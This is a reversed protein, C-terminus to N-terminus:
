KEGESCTINIHNYRLRYTQHRLNSIYNLSMLFRNASEQYETQKAATTPPPPAISGATQLEAGRNSSPLLCCVLEAIVFLRWSLWCFLTWTICILVGSVVSLVLTSVAIM